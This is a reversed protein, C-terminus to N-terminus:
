QRAAVARTLTNTWNWELQEAALGAFLDDPLTFGLVLLKLPKIGLVTLAQNLDAVECRLGFFSSNVVRLIKGTLAPDMEICEKIAQSDVQPENTLRVVELAVTPRSYLTTARKAIEEIRSTVDNM